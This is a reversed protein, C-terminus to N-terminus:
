KKIDKNYKGSLKYILDLDEGIGCIEITGKKVLSDFSEYFSVRRTELCAMELQESTLIPSGFEIINLKCVKLVEAFFIDKDFFLDTPDSFAGDSEFENVIVACYQEASMDDIDKM